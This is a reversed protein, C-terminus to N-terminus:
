PGASKRGPTSGTVAHGTPPELSRDEFYELIPLSEYLVFGDDRIVPVRGRPNLQLFEPTKVEGKSFDLLRSEYDLGKLEAGLLVRWSNERITQGSTV